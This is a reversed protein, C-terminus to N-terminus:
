KREQGSYFMERETNQYWFMHPFAIKPLKQDPIVKYSVPHLPFSNGAVCIAFGPM